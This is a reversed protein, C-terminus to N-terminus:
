EGSASLFATESIAAYNENDSSSTSNLPNRFNAHEVFKGLEPGLEPGLKPAAEEESESLTLDVVNGNTASLSSVPLSSSTAM